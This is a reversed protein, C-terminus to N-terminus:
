RPELIVVPIQRTTARRYEDYAPMARVFRDYLPGAEQPSAQRARIRRITPGVEVEADPQAQLNRWWAPDVDEGANSAVVVLNPGDEIFYLGNRRPRGTSRGVTHLFLTRLQGRSGNPMTLRGGSLRSVTRDLAWGIRLARRPPIM